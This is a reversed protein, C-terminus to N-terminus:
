RAVRASKPPNRRVRMCSEAPQSQDIKDTSKRVREHEPAQVLALPGAGNDGPRKHIAAVGHVLGASHMKTHLPPSVADGDVGTGQGDDSGTGSSYSAPTRGPFCCGGCSPDSREGDWRARACTSATRSDAVRSLM